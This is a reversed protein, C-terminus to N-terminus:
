WFVLLAWFNRTLDRTRIVDYCVGRLHVHSGRLPCSHVPAGELAVVEVVVTQAELWHNELAAAAAAAALARNEV